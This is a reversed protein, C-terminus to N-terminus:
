RDKRKPSPKYGIEGQSALRAIRRARDHQVAKQLEQRIAMLSGLRRSVHESLKWWFEDNHMEALVHRQDLFPKVDAFPVELEKALQKPSVNLALCIRSLFTENSYASPEKTM